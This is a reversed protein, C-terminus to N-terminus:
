EVVVAITTGDVPEGEENLLVVNWQATGPKLFRLSLNGDATLEGIVPEVIDMSFGELVAKVAGGDLRISITEETGVTCVDKEFLSGGTIGYPAIGFSWVGGDTLPKNGAGSEPDWLCDKEMTVYYDGQEILPKKLVVMAKTGEQEWGVFARDEKLLPGLEVRATDNFQVKEVVSGDEARHVTLFGEGAQLGTKKACIALVNTGMLADYQFPLFYVEGIGDSGELREQRKPDVASELRDATMEGAGVSGTQGADLSVQPAEKEAGSCSVALACMLVAMIFIFYKQKQKQKM